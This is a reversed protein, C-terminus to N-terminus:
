LGLAKNKAVSANMKDMQADSAATQHQAKYEEYPMGYILEQATEKDVEHGLEAAAEMYWKYFCNRCFGGTGMLDINQVDTRKQLLGVLRRFVAAEVKETTAADLSM